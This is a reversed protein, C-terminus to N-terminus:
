RSANIVLRSDKFMQLPSGVISAEESECLLHSM